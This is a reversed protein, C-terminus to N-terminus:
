PTAHSPAYSGLREILYQLDDVDHPQVDAKALMLRALAAVKDSDDRIDALMTWCRDNM